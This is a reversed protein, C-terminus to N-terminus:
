SRNMVISKLYISFFFLCFLFRNLFARIAFSRLIFYSSNPSQLSNKTPSSSCVDESSSRCNIFRYLLSQPSLPSSSACEDDSSYDTPLKSPNSNLALPLPLTRDAAEQYCYGGAYGMKILQPYPSYFFHFHSQYMTLKSSITM